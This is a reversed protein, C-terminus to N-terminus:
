GPTPPFFFMNDALYLQQFPSPGGQESLLMGAYKYSLGSPSSYLQATCCNLALAAALVSWGHELSTLSAVEGRGASSRAEPM